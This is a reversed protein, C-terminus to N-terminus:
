SQPKESNESESIPRNIVWTALLNLAQKFENIRSSSYSEYQESIAYLLEERYVEGKDRLRRFANGKSSDTRSRREVFWSAVTLAAADSIEHSGYCEKIEILTKETSLRQIGSDVVIRVTM